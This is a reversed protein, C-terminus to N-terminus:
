ACGCDSLSGYLSIQHQGSGLAEVKAAGGDRLEYVTAGGVTKAKRAGM